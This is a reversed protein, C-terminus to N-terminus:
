TAGANVDVYAVARFSGGARDSGETSIRFVDLTNLRPGKLREEILLRSCGRHVCERLVEGIYGAVNERTNPGTVIAHLYAPKQTVTLKYSM